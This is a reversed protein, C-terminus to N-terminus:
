SSYRMPMLLYKYNTIPASGAETQGTLVAPKNAGTFSIHVFATNIATLGDTLYTPNFAINIDEGKYNIDLKESAQAEDGTGAELQLTNNSFNLRLPVTKDTVLAVRRVSDLFPAVEIIADATSESPLLHRFPPFSGDLVRSTMTKGESIFGVLKENTTAPALAITVQNSGILSKAADALTRARLLSTTEINADQASWTLERVALRYRDTAALTIQNKNIEVFVGTLTPLSDDKGAAIAVQNVAAAFLDSNLSGSAAPLEPLTPYESLPLTPLTFKASGASVLVRTGELVFSIPKAPLSRSIEALLRGPVLVKGKQSVEAKFKAKASTELDSGSLTIEESADIVIGLLATTIPRNSISKSVWNVADVLSDREVVFKM